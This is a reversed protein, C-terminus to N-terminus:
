FIVKKWEMVIKVPPGASNLEIPIKKWFVVVNEKSEKSYGGAISSNERM